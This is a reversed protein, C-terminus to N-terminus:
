GGGASFQKKKLPPNIIGLGNRLPNRVLDALPLHQFVHMAGHEPCEPFPGVRGQSVDALCVSLLRMHGVIGDIDSEERVHNRM